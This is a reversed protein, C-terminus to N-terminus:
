VGLYSVKQGAVTCVCYVKSIDDAELSVTQGAALRYGTASTVSSGGVWVDGSNDDDAKVVVGFWLPFSTSSLQYTKTGVGGTVEAVALTKQGHTFTSRTQSTTTTSPVAAEAGASRGLFIYLTRGTQVPTKLYFREFGSKYSLPNFLTPLVADNGASDFRVEIGSLSGDCSFTLTDGDHDVLEGTREVNLSYRLIEYPRAEKEKVGLMGM